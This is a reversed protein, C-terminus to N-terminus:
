KEIKEIRYLILAAAWVLAFLLLLWRFDSGIIFNVVTMWVISSLGAIAVAPFAGRTKAKFSSFAIYLTLLGSSFIYGGMVWFVKQLWRTLGPAAAQIAVPNAEMFRVDEPLLPPRLFIFYLSIGILIVGSLALVKPYFPYIKVKAKEAM